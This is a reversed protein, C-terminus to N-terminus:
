KGSFSAEVIRTKKTIPLKLLSNNEDADGELGVEFRVDAENGDGQKPSLPRPNSVGSEVIGIGNMLNSFEAYEIKRLDEASLSCDPEFPRNNPSFIWTETRSFPRSILRM